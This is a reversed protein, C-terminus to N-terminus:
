SRTPACVTWTYVDGFGLVGQQAPAVNKQKAYCFAWIEDCEVRKCPLNVLV